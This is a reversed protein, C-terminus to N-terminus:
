YEWVDMEFNLLETEIRSQEKRVFAEFKDADPIVSAYNLLMRNYMNSDGLLYSAYLNQSFFDDFTLRQTDNGRPIIMQKALFPRLEDFIIWGLISNQFYLMTNESNLKNDPHLAYLPAIAVIKSYMRSNHKNFFVVEQILFKIQNKVYNMYANEEIRRTQTLTDVQVLNNEREEDYMFADSLDGGELIQSDDFSPKVDRPNRRYMNIGNTDDCIAELIVRFLSKYEDNPRTPFYLQYNQKDRMDIIRYVTRSWVIDDARHNIVPITDAMASMAEAQLSIIGKKDFFPLPNQQAQAVFPLFFFLGLIQFVLCRRMNM